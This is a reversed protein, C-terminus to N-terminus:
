AAQYKADNTHLEEGGAQSMLTPRGVPVASPALRPKSTVGETSISDVRLRLGELRPLIRRVTEREPFVREATAM